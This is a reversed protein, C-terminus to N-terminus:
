RHRGETARSDCAATSPRWESSRRTRNEEVAGLAWMDPAIQPVSTRCHSHVAIRSCPGRCYSHACALLHDLHPPNGCSGLLSGPSRNDKSRSENAAYRVLSFEADTLAPTNCGM